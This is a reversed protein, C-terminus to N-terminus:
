TSKDDPDPKAHMNTLFAQFGGIVAGLNFIVWFTSVYAATLDKTPYTLLMAGNGAWLLGAGVGVLARLSHGYPLPAGEDARRADALALLACLRHWGRVGM